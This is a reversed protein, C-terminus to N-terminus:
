IQVTAVCEGNNISKLNETDRHRGHFNKKKREIEIEKKRPKTVTFSKRPLDKRVEFIILVLLLLPVLRATIACGIYGKKIRSSCATTGDRM